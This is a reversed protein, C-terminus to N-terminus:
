RIGTTKCSFSTRIITHERFVTKLMIPKEASVKMDAQRTICTFLYIENRVFLSGIYIKIEIVKNIM